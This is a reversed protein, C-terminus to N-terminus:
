PRRVRGAQGALLAQTQQLAGLRGSCESLQSCPGVWGERAAGAHGIRGAPHAPRGWPPRVCYRGQGSGEQVAGGALEACSSAAASAAPTVPVPSPTGLQSLEPAPCVGSAPVLQHLSTLPRASGPPKWLGTSGAKLQLFLTLTSVLLSPAGPFEALVSAVLQLRVRPRPPLVPCRTSPTVAHGGGSSPRQPSGSGELWPGEARGPGDGPAPPHRVQAKGRMLRGSLSVM